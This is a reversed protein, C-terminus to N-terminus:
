DLCVAPLERGGLALQSAWLQCFWGATPSPVPRALGASSGRWGATGVGDRAIRRNPGATEKDFRGQGAGWVCPVQRVAPKRAGGVAAPFPSLTPLPPRTRSGSPPALCGYGSGVQRSANAGAVQGASLVLGSGQRRLDLAIRNESRHKQRLQVRYASSQRHADWVDVIRPRVGSEEGIRPRRTGRAICEAERDTSRNGQDGSSM